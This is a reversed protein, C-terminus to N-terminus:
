LGLLCCGGPLPPQPLRKPHLEARSCGPGTASLLIHKVFGNASLAFYEQSLCGSSACSSSPHFCGGSAKPVALNLSDPHGVASGVSHLSCSYLCCLVLQLHHERSGKILLGLAQCQRELKQRLYFHPFYSSLSSTALSKQPCSKNGHGQSFKGAEQSFPLM